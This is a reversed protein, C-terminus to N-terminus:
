NMEVAMVNDTPNRDILLNYPDIGAKAPKQDVFFEFKNSGSKLRHKKIYLPSDQWRGNVQERGLVGIDVWDNMIAKSENGLSDAYLKRADVTLLIKYKGNDLKQYTATITKNEYLTIKQFMDTVLYQLSDPTVARVYGMFELSNTYPAQQFAIDKIYNRIATNVKDEGIYDALAYMVVSGKGYHIYDQNEVLYLPMEKKTESTRGVLYRNMQYQLFRNMKKEGYEKKMVMLASYQSLTESLLMAGQVDAGIVQHAWWQHAVEHATIYFPYDIAEAAEVDAIFGLSESYPITNPFSQAFAQYGPFELIRVQRHQYPSFNETYYDLSKKVGKIMRGLNYEHGKHYYIEISVPKEEKGMWVDKKVQYDASLFSYFNLIPADMKYHFYRRGGETWEKQLYGPAIALQDKSTSVTAEFSIWDADKSIFTNRRALSDRVDAMREKPELGYAKRLGDEGLELGPQYGIGPLYSSSLFTGNYVIGTNFGSNRFGKTEYLLNMSLRMSDGPQMPQALKYIYHRHEKDSLVLEAPKSFELFRVKAEDSVALHVSDIAQNHKNKIWYHGKFSFAREEPFIAVALKVATIRPQLVAAYKKYKKEYSAQREAQQDSSRYTNLINTNYFIFGGTLLFIFLGSTTVLLTSRRFQLTALKFRGSIRTEAGRAWLLNGAVALLLAFAAWYVKYIAFPWVMHGYGNMASYIISPDSNFSYLNHEWGLQGKFINFLYYVVMVFHGLYKNNVLVQVLMALVCLMLYEVLHVGFLGKFYVDLEYRYYGKFAQIIIGCILVVLLLVVQVLMLASLKSAFPVWNPIPLADYIQNVQNDRERWVLEGSYFTIILLIFLSFTGNLIQIVTSTVPFVHTDFRKGAEAGAVFLFLVGATVIAVFYVSQVIGKFELRTLRLYQRLSFGYSFYQNVKPLLLRESPVIAGASGGKSRKRFPKTGTNAFSFRFRYYCFALVAMGICMWFARNVLISRSFPLLLTNREATTWYRQTYHIASGGLPDALNALVENHLDSTLNGAIGYLVLFVVGGVYISLGSRTLTALTFFIAGTLFLNPIVIVFYPQLYGLLHFPGLKDTEMWPMFTAFMAGAGVGGFLLLTVLFSGWFRGFLYGGKTIPTTYYLCHTKHEFDRFVPTGMIFCTILVGFLCLMTIIWNIQYPSNAYVKGGSTDGIAWGSGFAGGMALMALFAMLFLLTFYIYTAPRKM